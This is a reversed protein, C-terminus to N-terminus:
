PVASSIAEAEAHAFGNPYRGLYQRAAVVATPSAVSRLLRMREAAASEALPSAPYGALFRNFAALAGRTDGARKAAVAEAFLNNQQTLKSAATAGAGTRSPSVSRPTVTPQRPSFTAARACDAPWQAGAGVATELGAYRVAVVGETVSVRTITGGGCSADAPVVSVRFRTGRVEVEADPTDVLFRQGAALKAVHLDISGTDLHLVEEPGEGGMTLDASDGLVAITGTSFALTARGNPPTLIRSGASLARGEPLPSQAGAVIVRAGKAAERAVVQLESAATASARVAPLRRRAFSWEGVLAVAFVAAAASLLMAFRAVRRKFRRAAIAQAVTAIARSRAEPEPSPPALSRRDRALVRGALRAYRPPSM